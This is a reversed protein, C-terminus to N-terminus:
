VIREEIRSSNAKIVNSSMIQNNSGDKEQIKIEGVFKKDNGKDKIEHDQPEINRKGKRNENDPNDFNDRRM